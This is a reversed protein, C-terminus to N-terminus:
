IMSHMLYCRKVIKDDREPNDYKRWTLQCQLCCDDYCNESKTAM